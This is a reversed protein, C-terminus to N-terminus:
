DLFQSTVFPCLETKRQRRWSITCEQLPLSCRCNALSSQSMCIRTPCSKGALMIHSLFALTEVDMTRCKQNPLSISNITPICINEKSGDNV